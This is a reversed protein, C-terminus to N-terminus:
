EVDWVHLIVGESGAAVHQYPDHEDDRWTCELWYSTGNDHWLEIRAPCKISDRLENPTPDPDGRQYKRTM